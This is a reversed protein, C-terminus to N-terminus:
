VHSLLSGSLSSAADAEGKSHPSSKQSKLSSPLQRKKKKEQSILDHFNDSSCISRNYCFCLLRKSFSGLKLLRIRTIKCYSQLACIRELLALSPATTQAPHPWFNLHSHASPCLPHPTACPHKNPALMWPMPSWSSGSDRGCFSFCSCKLLGWSLTQIRITVGGLGALLWLFLM